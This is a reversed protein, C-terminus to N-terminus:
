PWDEGVVIDEGKSAADVQSILELLLEDCAGIAEDAPDTTLYTVARSAVISADHAAKLAARLPALVDADDRYSPSPARYRTPPYDINRYGTLPDSM